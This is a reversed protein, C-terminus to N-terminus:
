GLRDRDAAALSQGQFRAQLDLKVTAEEPNTAHRLKEAEQTVWARVSPSLKERLQADLTQSPAAMGRCALFGLLAAITLGRM